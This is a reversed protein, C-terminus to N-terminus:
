AIARWTAFGRHLLLRAWCTCAGFAGAGLRLRRAAAAGDGRRFLQLLHDPRRPLRHDRVAAMRAVPGSLQRLLGAALGILYGGVLNAALTGIQIHSHLQALWTLGWRLWAGLAAGLGVALWSMAKLGV